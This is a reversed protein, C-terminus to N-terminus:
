PLMESVAVTRGEAAARAVALTAALAMAGDRADVVPEAESRVVAVLNELQAVYCSEHEARLSRRALPVRWDAGGEHEWLELTPLALSAREGVVRYCSARQHPFTLSQEAAIEWFWPSPGADTVLLTGLPGSAFRLTVAATDEVAHGRLASSGIAQVSDIEGCLFRFCDLDHIANILLPGGGPLRRWDADFYTDHKRVVALGEIAVLRGLEGDEIARRAERMDPSHRRHHGVLLPVGAAEGAEVLRLAAPMTDAVPKEILAPIGRAVCALGAEVHLQNPLAVIAADPSVSELLHEYDEVLPVGLGDALARADPSVDAIGALEADPHRAILQAHERGILGAGLLAIRVRAM